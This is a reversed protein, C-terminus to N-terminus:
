AGKEPDVRRAENWRGGEDQQWYVLTVGRERWAQWRQRASAMADDDNGDFFDLLREFPADAEPVTGDTVILVKAQNPNEVGTSLYIAQSDAFGTRATGHPLFSDARYAWLHQDLQDRQDESASIVVARLGRDVIKELIAPLARDLGATKLHYFGVEAIM